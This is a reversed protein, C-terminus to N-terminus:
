YFMSMYGNVFAKKNNMDKKPKPIPPPKIEVADGKPKQPKVGPIKNTPPPKLAVSNGQPEQKKKEEQQFDLAKKYLFQEYFNM